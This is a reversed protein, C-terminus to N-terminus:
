HMRLHDVWKCDHCEKMVEEQQLNGYSPVYICKGKTFISGDEWIEM